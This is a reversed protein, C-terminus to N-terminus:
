SHRGMSSQARGSMGGGRGERGARRATQFSKLLPPAGACVTPVRAVRGGKGEPICEYVKQANRLETGCQILTCFHFSKWSFKCFAQDSQGQKTFLLTLQKRRCHQRTSKTPGDSFSERAACRACAAGSQLRYKDSLTVKETCKKASIYSLYDREARGGSPYVSSPAFFPGICVAIVCYHGQGLPFPFHSAWVIVRNRSQIPANGDM